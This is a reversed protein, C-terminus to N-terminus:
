HILHNCYTRDWLERCKKFSIGKWRVEVEEGRREEERQKEELGCKEWIGRRWEDNNVTGDSFFIALILSVM